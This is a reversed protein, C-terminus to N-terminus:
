QMSCNSIEREIEDLEEESFKVTVEKASPDPKIKSNFFDTLRTKTDLIKTENSTKNNNNSTTQEFKLNGSPNYTGKESLNDKMEKVIAYQYSKQNVEEKNKNIFASFGLVTMNRFTNFNLTDLSFCHKVAFNYNHLTCNGFFQENITNNSITIDGYKKTYIITNVCEEVIEDEDRGDSNLKQFEVSFAERVYETVQDKTLDPLDAVGDYQSAYGCNVISIKYSTDNTKRLVAYFAHESSNSSPAIPTCFPLIVPKGTADIHNIINNVLSKIKEPDPNDEYIELEKAISASFRITQLIKKTTKKGLIYREKMANKGYSQLSAYLICLINFTNQCQARDYLENFIRLQPPLQKIFLKISDKRNKELGEIKLKEEENLRVNEKIVKISCDFIHPAMKAITLRPNLNGFEEECVPYNGVKVIRLEEVLKVNLDSILAEDLSIKLHDIFTEINFTLKTPPIIHAALSYIDEEQFTIDDEKSKDEKKTLEQCNDILEKLIKIEYRKPFVISQKKKASSPLNMLKLRSDKEVSELKHLNTLDFYSFSKLSSKVHESRKNCLLSIASEEKGDLPSTILTNCNDKFYKVAEESFIDTPANLAVSKEYEINQM